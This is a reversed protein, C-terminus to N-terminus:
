VVVNYGMSDRLLDTSGGLHNEAQNSTAVCVDLLVLLDDLVSSQRRASIAALDTSADPFHQPSSSIDHIQGCSAAKPAPRLNVLIKQSDWFMIPHLSCAFQFPVPYAPGVDSVECDQRVHRPLCVRAEESMFPLFTMTSPVLAAHVLPSTFKRTQKKGFKAKPQFNHVMLDYINTDGKHRSAAEAAKLFRKHARVLFTNPTAIRYVDFRELNPLPVTASIIEPAFFSAGPDSFPDGLDYCQQLEESVPPEMQIALPKSSKGPSRGPSRATPTRMRNTLASLPTRPTSPSPRPSLPFKPSFASSLSLFSASPRKATDPTFLPAGKFGRRKGLEGISALPTVVDGSSGHKPNFLSPCVEPSQFASPPSMHILPPTPMSLSPSPSPLVPSISFLSAFEDAKSSDAHSNQPGSSHVISKRESPLEDAHRHRSLGPERQWHSSLVLQEKEAADELVRPTEVVNHTHLDLTSLPLEPAAPRRTLTATLRALWIFLYNLLACSRSAASPM